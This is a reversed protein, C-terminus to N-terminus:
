PSRPYAAVQGPGLVLGPGTTGSRSPLALMGYVAAPMNLPRTACPEVVWQGISSAAGERLGITPLAPAPQPHSQPIRWQETTLTHWSPPISLPRYYEAIRAIRPEWFATRRAVRACVVGDDPGHRYTHSQLNIPPAVAGTRVAPTM